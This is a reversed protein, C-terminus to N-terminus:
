GILNSQSDAANNYKLTTQNALDNAWEIGNSNINIDEYKRLKEELKKVGAKTDNLKQIGFGQVQLEAEQAVGTNQDQVEQASPTRSRSANNSRSEHIRLKQDEPSRNQYRYDRKQTQTRSRSRSRDSLNRKSQKEYQPSRSRSRSFSKLRRSEEYTPSRNRSRLPQDDNQLIENNSFEIPNISIDQDLTGKGESSSKSFTVDIETLRKPLPPRVIGNKEDKKREDARIQKDLAMRSAMRLKEMPTLIKEPEPKRNTGHLKSQPKSKKKESEEIEFPSFNINRNESTTDEIDFETIFEIKQIQSESEIENEKSTNPIKKAKQSISPM